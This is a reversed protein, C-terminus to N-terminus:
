LMAQLRALPSRLEHSVDRLLRQQSQLLADVRSTMVDFDHALRAIDDTRSGISPAVRVTVDGDAVKQGAQRLRGGPLM